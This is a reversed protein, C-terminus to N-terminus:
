KQLFINCKKRNAYPQVEHIIEVTVVLASLSPLGRGVGFNRRFCMQSEVGSQLNSRIRIDAAAPDTRSHQPHMVKSADTM